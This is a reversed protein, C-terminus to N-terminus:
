ENSIFAANKKPLHWKEKLYEEITLQNDQKTIPITVWESQVNM